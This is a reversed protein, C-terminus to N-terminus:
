RTFLNYWDMNFGRIKLDKVIPFWPSAIGLLVLFRGNPKGDQYLIETLVWKKDLAQYAFAFRHRIPGSDGTRLAFCGQNDSFDIAKDTDTWGDREGNGFSTNGCPKNDFVDTDIDIIAHYPRVISNTTVIDYGSKKLLFHTTFYAFKDPNGPPSIKVILKPNKAFFATIETLIPQFSRLATDQAQQDSAFGTSTTLLCAVTLLTMLINKM